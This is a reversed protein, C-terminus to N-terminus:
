KIILLQASHCETNPSYDREIHQPIDFVVKSSKWMQGYSYSNKISDNFYMKRFDIKIGLSQLKRIIINFYYRVEKNNRGLNIDNILLCCNPRQLFFEIIQDVFTEFNEFDNRLADSLCYNLVIINPYHGANNYYDFVNENHFSVSANDNSGLILLLQKQIDNWITNIDFGEFTYKINHLSTIRSRLTEFAILETAPGCGISCISIERQNYLWERIAYFIRCMETAYRYANKCVYMYVMKKCDYNLNSINGYHIKRLCAGCDNSQLAQKKLCKEDKFASDCYEILQDIM